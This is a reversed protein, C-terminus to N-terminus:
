KSLPVTEYKYIDSDGCDPGVVYVVNYDADAPGAFLMILAPVNKLKAIPDTWRGLDVVEPTANPTTSVFAACTLIARLSQETAGTYKRLAEPIASSTSFTSTGTGTGAASGSAPTLASNTHKAPHKPSAKTPATVTSSGSAPSGTTGSGTTGSQDTSTSGPVPSTVAKLDGSAAPRSAGGLLTPALTALNSTSYSRGTDVVRIKTTGPSSTPNGVVAPLGLSDAGSATSAGGNPASTSHHTVGIVIAIVALVVITAAAATPASPLAWRRRDRIGTLDPVVNTASDPEAPAASVAAPEAALAADIRATVDAPM